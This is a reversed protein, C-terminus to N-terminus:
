PIEEVRVPRHEKLARTAAISARLAEIGDEGTCQSPAEGRAVRVFAALENKYADRFRDQFFAWAPGPAAPVGPELSRMPMQPGMGVSVSDRSGFIETRIDYGLPNHRAVTLVAMVGNSMRVTAVATDVDGYKGFMDFGRVAGDAYVEEVEAGTLWRILDFDHISFDMLLGGSTPIYSEHPPAPDHGTLRIAYVTGIEGTEILRRAERYAPDFRRQFGVQLGVGAARAHAVAERSAPLELAIPKECFVPL